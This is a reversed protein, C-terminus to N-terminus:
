LLGLETAKSIAQTRRTVELKLYINSVHTKVTNLSVFLQDAIEQNSYGKSILNLVELERSSLLDSQIEKNNIEESTASDVLVEKNSFSRALYIGLGLFVVSIIAIYIDDTFVQAYRNYEIYQM